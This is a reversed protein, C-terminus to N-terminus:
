LRLSDFREQAEDDRKLLRELKPRDCLSVLARIRPWDKIPDFRQLLSLILREPSMIHIPVGYVEDRRMDVFFDNDSRRVIFPQLFIGPAVYYTDEGMQPGLTQYLASHVRHTSQVVVLVDADGTYMPQDYYSFALSGYLVWRDIVREAQLGNLIVFARVYPALADTPNAARRERNWYPSHCRPCMVPM